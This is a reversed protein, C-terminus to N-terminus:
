MCFELSARVGDDESLNHTSILHLYLSQRRYRCFPALYVNKLAPPRDATAVSGNQWLDPTKTSTKINKRRNPCLNSSKTDTKRNKRRNPCLNSTKTSSKESDIHKQSPNVVSENVVFVSNIFLNLPATNKPSQWSLVSAGPLKNIFLIKRLLFQPM